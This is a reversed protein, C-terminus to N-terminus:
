VRAGLDRASTEQAFVITQGRRFPPYMDILASLARGGVRRLPSGLISFYDTFEHFVPRLGARRGIEILESRTYERFHGPNDRTPRIMEYPNMGLALWVRKHLAAANPTQCVIYGSPKLASRLFLLVLEPATYLHEIVEAFCILDAKPMSPWLRPEQADNLDFVLHRLLHSGDVSADGFEKDTVPLGVTHVTSYLAGLRSSLPSRGVDVVVADNEPVLRSCLTCLYDYRRAHFQLYADYSSLRRRCDVQLQRARTGLEQRTSGDFASSREENSVEM